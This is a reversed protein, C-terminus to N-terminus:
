PSLETSSVKMPPPELFDEYTSTNTYTLNGGVFFDGSVYLFDGYVYCNAEVSIAEKFLTNAGSVTLGNDVKFRTNAM